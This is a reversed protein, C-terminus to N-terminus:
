AGPCGQVRTAEDEGFEEELEEISVGPACECSPEICWRVPTPNVGSEACTVSGDHNVDLVNNGTASGCYTLPEAHHDSCGASTDIFRAQVMLDHDAPGCNGGVSGSHIDAVDAAVGGDLKRRFVTHVECDASGCIGAGSHEPGCHLHQHCPRWDSGTTDCTEAHAPTIGGPGFTAPSQASPADHPCPDPLEGDNDCCDSAFAALLVPLALAPLSLDFLKM